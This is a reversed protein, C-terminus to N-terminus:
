TVFTNYSVRFTILAQCGPTNGQLTVVDGAKHAYVGPGSLHGTTTDYTLVLTPYTRVLDETLTVPKSSHLPADHDYVTISFPLARQDVQVNRTFNFDPSIDDRDHSVLSRKSAGDIQIDTYFDTQRGPKDLVSIAKVHKVTVSLQAMAIPFGGIFLDYPTSGAGFKTVRLFYTGADIRKSVVERSISDRFSHGSLVVQGFQDLLNLEADSVLGTLAARLCSPRDLEFQWIDVTDTDGDLYGRFYRPGNLYDGDVPNANALTNNPEKELDRVGPDFTLRLSYPLTELPEHASATQIVQIFYTGAGLGELCIQQAWKPQPHLRPQNQSAGHRSSVAVIEGTDLQYNQNVDRILTLTARSGVEPLTITLSGFVSLNFRYVDVGNSHNNLFGCATFHDSLTGLDLYSKLSAKDPPHASPPETYISPM